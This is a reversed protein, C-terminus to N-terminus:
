NAESRAVRRYNRSFMWPLRVMKRRTRFGAYEVPETGGIEHYLVARRIQKAGMAELSRCVERMSNGTHLEGAVVLVRELLQEDHVVFDILARDERRGDKWLHQETFAAIPRDGLIGAILASMVAGGRAIGVILTPLYGDAIMRQTMAITLRQARRWSVRRYQAAKEYVFWVSAVAGITTLVLGVLTLVV